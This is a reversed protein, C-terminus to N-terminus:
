TMICNRFCFNYIFVCDSEIEQEESFFGLIGSKTEKIITENLKITETLYPLTLRFFEIYKWNVKTDIRIKSQALGIEVFFLGFKVKAGLFPELILSM